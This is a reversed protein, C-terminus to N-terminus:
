QGDQWYDWSSGPTLYQFIGFNATHELTNKQQEEERASVIVWGTCLV